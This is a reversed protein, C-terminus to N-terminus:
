DGQNRIIVSTSLRTADSSGDSVRYAHQERFSERTEGNIEPLVRDDFSFHRVGYARVVSAHESILEAAVLCVITCIVLALNVAVFILLAAMVQLTSRFTAASNM